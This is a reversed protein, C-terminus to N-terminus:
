QNVLYQIIFFLIKAEILKISNIQRARSIPSVVRKQSYIPYGIDVSLM